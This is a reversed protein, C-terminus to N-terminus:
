SVNSVQLIGQICLLDCTPYSHIGLTCVHYRPYRPHTYSVQIIDTTVRSVKSVQIICTLISVDCNSGATGNEFFILNLSKDFWKDIPTGGLSEQFLQFLIYEVHEIFSIFPDIYCVFM